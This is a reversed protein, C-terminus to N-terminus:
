QGSVDQRRAADLIRKARAIVPADVMTGDVAGLPRGHLSAIMREAWAIEDPSPQMAERIPRIQSPHIALKGGFGLASARKADAAVRALDKFDPTVGDLPKARGALRSRLVLESRAMLLPEFDPACDLDIALDLTGIALGALDAHSVMDSLSALGKASEILAIVPVARGLKAMVEDIEVGREAKPLMIADFRVSKLSLLDEDFWPSAASNIRIIVPKKAIPHNQIATRAAGKDHAAVSDELDLIVADADSIEAKAFLLPHSAPVFLPAVPLRHSEPFSVPVSM